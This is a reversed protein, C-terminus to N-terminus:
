RAALLENLKKDIIKGANLSQKIEHAELGFLEQIAQELRIFEDTDTTAFTGDETDVDGNRWYAVLIAREILEKLEKLKESSVITTVEKHPNEEQKPKKQEENGLSKNIMLAVRKSLEDLSTPLKPLHGFSAGEEEVDIYPENGDTGHEAAYIEVDVGYARVLRMADFDNELEHNKVLDDADTGLDRGAKLADICFLDQYEIGTEDLVCEDGDDDLGWIDALLGEDTLSITIFHKSDYPRLLWGKGCSLKEYVLPESKLNLNEAYAVYGEGLTVGSKSVVAYVTVDQEHNTHEKNTLVFPVLINNDELFPPTHKMIVRKDTDKEPFRM